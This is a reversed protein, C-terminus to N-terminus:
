AGTTCFSEIFHHFAYPKPQDFVVLFHHMFAEDRAQIAALVAHLDLIEERAGKLLLSEGRLYQPSLDLHHRPPCVPDCNEASLAGRKAFLRRFEIQPGDLVPCPPNAPHTLISRPKGHWERVFDGGVARLILRNLSKRVSRIVADGTRVEATFQLAAGFEELAFLGANVVVTLHLSLNEGVSYPLPIESPESHLQGCAVGHHMTNPVLESFLKILM